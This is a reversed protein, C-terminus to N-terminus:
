SKGWQESAGPSLAGLAVPDETRRWKAEDRVAVFGKQSGLDFIERFEVEMPKRDDDPLDNCAKLLAEPRTEFVADFDLDGFLSRAHFYRRLLANPM